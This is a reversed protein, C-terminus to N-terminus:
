DRPLTEYIDKCEQCVASNPKPVKTVTFVYGCLATVPEGTVTSALMQTKDIYHFLDDGTKADETVPSELVATNSM